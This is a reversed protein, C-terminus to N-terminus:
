RRNGIYSSWKFKTDDPGNTTYQVLSGEKPNYTAHFPEYGIAEKLYFLSNIDGPMEYTSSGSPITNAPHSHIVSDITLGKKDLRYALVDIKINAVNNETELYSGAEITTVLGIEVNTNDALFKFLEEGNYNNNVHLPSTLSLSGETITKYNFSISIEHGDNDTKRIISGNKDQNVIYFTDSDTSKKHSVIRGTNDVEWIDMGEPDVLNVPDAACYTYPSISFYKEAMPDMSTWRPVRFPLYRRAGFDYDAPTREKGSFRYPNSSLSEEAESPIVTQGPAPVDDGYPGYWYRELVTGNQAVTARVSGLHDKVFYVYQGNSTINGNAAVYGTPVILKDLLGNKIVLSGSYDTTNERLKVGAASYWYRVTDNGSLVIRETAATLLLHNGKM